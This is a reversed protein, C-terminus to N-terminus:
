TDKEQTSEKDPMGDIVLGTMQEQLEVVDDVAAGCTCPKAISLRGTVRDIFVSYQESMDEALFREMVSPGDLPNVETMLLQQKHYPCLLFGGPQNALTKDCLAMFKDVDDALIASGEGYGNPAGSRATTCPERDENMM